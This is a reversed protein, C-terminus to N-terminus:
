SGLGGGIALCEDELSVLLVILRGGLFLLDIDRIVLIVLGRLEGPQVLGKIVM